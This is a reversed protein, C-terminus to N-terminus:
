YREPTQFSPEQYTSGTGPKKRKEIEDLTQGGLRGASAAQENGRQYGEAETGAMGRAKALGMNFNTEYASRSNNANFASIRDRAAARDAAHSYDQGRVQGGLQGAQAMAQLARTRADAAFRAGSMSNAQASSQAGSLQAALESGGGRMGRQAMQELVAARNAQDNQNARQQAEQQAVRSQLDMGQERGVNQLGALAEMQAARTAPDETIQDYATPGVKGAAILAQIDPVSLSGYIEELDPGDDGLLGFAGGAVGGIAAGYPGFAAGAGAGSLAGSGANKLGM